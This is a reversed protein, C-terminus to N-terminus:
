RRLTPDKVSNESADERTSRDTLSSGTAQWIPSTLSCVWTHCTQHCPPSFSRLARTGTVSEQPVAGM